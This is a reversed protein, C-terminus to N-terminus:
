SFLSGKSIFPKGDEGFRLCRFYEGRSLQPAELLRDQNWDEALAKADKIGINFLFLQECQARVTANLLAPRQSLYYVSHGYHRGKTATQRMAEDYRGVTDGAEDIFVMCSESAWFVSLFEENDDTIYDAEWKDWVSTLVHVPFGQAKHLSALRKGLTTKGSQSMGCILSHM